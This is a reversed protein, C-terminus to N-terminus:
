VGDGNVDVEQVRIQFLSPSPPFPLRVGIRRAEKGFPIYIKGERVHLIGSTFVFRFRKKTNELHSFAEVAALTYDLTV